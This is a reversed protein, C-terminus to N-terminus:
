KGLLAIADDLPQEKSSNQALIWDIVPQRWDIATNYAQPDYEALLNYNDGGAYMFDNVLVSYTTTAQLPQGTKNLVWAGAQWHMGGIAPSTGARSLVKLLQEGTLRVDVLMDDFPMMGVIDAMTIEGAPIPARMGGLNTLAIDATPYGLLWTETTLTQMDQSQQIIKHKLYGIPTSLEAETKSHWQAVDKAIQPDPLGGDNPSTGYGTSLISHTQPDVDFTAYAYSTFHYGGALILSNHVQSASLENCHGAGFMSINLDQVQDALRDLEDLCIHSPVLIIDAGSARVEPVIQRLAQEYDDFDFQSVNLPNTTYPTSTTTLGILGIKLGYVNLLAYPQIGLDVPTSGDKKYHINASLYPFRAQALRAKLNDLGFDFEHNGIVSAAYGMDNMVQVMSEGDFWTSIAPGTWNDGGSLIIYSSDPKEKEIGEWLGALNAAGQGAQMGEMWGHEDNTYFITLRRIQDATSSPTDPQQTPTCASIFLIFILLWSLLRSTKV